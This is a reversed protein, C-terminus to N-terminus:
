PPTSRTHFDHGDAAHLWRSRRKGGRALRHQRRVPAIKLSWMRALLEGMKQGVLRAVIDTSGGAAFPVIITLPREPFKGQARAVAPMALLAAAAKTLTRRNITTMTM